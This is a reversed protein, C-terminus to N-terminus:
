LARKKGMQRTVRGKCKKSGNGVILDHRKIIDALVKGNDSQEHMDGAILDPGLKSNADM